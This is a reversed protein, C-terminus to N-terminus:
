CFFKVPKPPEDLVTLVGFSPVRLHSFKLSELTILDDFSAACM